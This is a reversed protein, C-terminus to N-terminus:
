GSDVDKLRESVERFPLGARKAIKWIPMKHETRLHTALMWRIKVDDYEHHARLAWSPMGDGYGDPM